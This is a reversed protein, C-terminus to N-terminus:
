SAKGMGVGAETDASAAEDVSVDEGTDEGKGFAWDLKIEM